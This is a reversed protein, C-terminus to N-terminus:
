TRKPHIPFPRLRGAATSIPGSGRRPPRLDQSLAVPFRLGRQPRPRHANTQPDLRMSAGAAPGEICTIALNGEAPRAARLAAARGAVDGFLSVTIRHGGIELTDGDALRSRQISRGNLLIGRGSHLDDVFVGSPGDGNTRDALANWYIVAHFRAVGGGALQLECTSDAGILIPRSDSTAIRGASSILQISAGQVGTAGGAATLLDGAHEESPMTGGSSGIAGCLSHDIQQFEQGPELKFVLWHDGIRLV